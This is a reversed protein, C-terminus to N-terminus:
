YHPFATIIKFFNAPVWGEAALEPQAGASAPALATFASAHGQGRGRGREHAQGANAEHPEGAPRSAYWWDSGPTRLLIQLVEGKTFTLYTEDAERGRPSSAPEACHVACRVVRPTLVLRRGEYAGGPNLYTLRQETRVPLASCLRQASM